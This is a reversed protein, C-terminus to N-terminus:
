QHTVLRKEANNAFTGYQLRETQRNYETNCLLGQMHQQAHALVYRSTHMRENM